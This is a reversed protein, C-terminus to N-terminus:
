WPHQHLCFLEDDDADADDVDEAYKIYPHLTSSLFDFMKNNNTSLMNHLRLGGPLRFLHASFHVDMSQINGCIQM